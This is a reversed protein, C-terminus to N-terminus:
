TIIVCASSFSLSSQKDKICHKRTIYWLQFASPVCTVTNCKQTLLYSKILTILYLIYSFCQDSFWFKKREKKKKSSLKEMKAVIVFILLDILWHPNERNLVLGPLVRPMLLETCLFGHQEVPPLFYPFLHKPTTFPSLHTRSCHLCSELVVSRLVLGLLLWSSCLARYGGSLCHTQGWSNQSLPEPGSRWGSPGGTSDAVQSQM